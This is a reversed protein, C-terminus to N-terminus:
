ECPEAPGVAQSQGHAGDLDSAGDQIHNRLCRDQAGDQQGAIQAAGGGSVDADAVVENRRDNHSDHEPESQIQAIGSQPCQNQRSALIFTRSIMLRKSASPQYRTKALPPWRCNLCATLFPRTVTAPCNLTSTGILVSLLM